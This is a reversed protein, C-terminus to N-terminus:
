KNLIWKLIVRGDVGLGEKLSGSVGQLYKDGGGCMGYEGGM